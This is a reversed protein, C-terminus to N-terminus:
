GAIGWPLPTTTGFVVRAGAGPLLPMSLQLYKQGYQTNTFGQLWANDQYQKPLNYSVSVNGASKSAIAFVGQSALGQGAMRIDMVLWHATLLLAAITTSLDTGYGLSANFTVAAQDLAKQIDKNRIKELDNQQDEKAYPFDRDFYEKFEAITPPAWPM